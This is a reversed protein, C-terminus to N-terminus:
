FEYIYFDYTTLIKWTLFMEQIDDCYLMCPNTAQTVYSKVQAEKSILSTSLQSEDCPM